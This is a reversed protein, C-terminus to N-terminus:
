LNPLNAMTIQPLGTVGAECEMVRKLLMRVAAQLWATEADTLPRAGASVKRGTVPDDSLTSLESFKRLVTGAINLQGRPIDGGKAIRPGTHPQM